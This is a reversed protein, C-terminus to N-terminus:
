ASHAAAGCRWCHTFQPESHEGCQTCVWPSGTPQQAARALARLAASEDEDDVFLQPWTELMPLDGLAGALYHNRLESQIGASLLVNRAHAVTILSAARFV